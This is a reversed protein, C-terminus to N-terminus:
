IKYLFVVTMISKIQIFNLGVHCRNWKFGAVSHIFEHCNIGISSNAVVQKGYM